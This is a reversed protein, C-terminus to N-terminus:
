AIGTIVTISEPEVIVPLSTQWGEGIIRPPKDEHLESRIVRGPGAQGAARGLALYGMTNPLFLPEEDGLDLSVDRGTLGLLVFVTNPLFRTSGSETRYQLDYVEIPPLDEAALAQNIAALSARDGQIQVANGSVVLKGTRAAVKANGGLIGMVKRSTVIRSVAFGKDALLQAMAYIDAFPDYADSSWTGGAAARHGAPNPYAVDEAYANFGRREVKASV